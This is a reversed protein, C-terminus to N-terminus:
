VVGVLQAYVESMIRTLAMVGGAYTGSALPRAWDATENARKMPGSLPPMMQDFLM